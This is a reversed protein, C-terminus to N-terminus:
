GGAQGGRANGVGGWDCAGEGGNAGFGAVPPFAQSSTLKTMAPVMSVNSAPEKRALKALRASTATSWSKMLDTTLEEIETTTPTSGSAALETWAEIEEIGGAARESLSFTLMSNDSVMINACEELSVLLDDELVIYMKIVPATM